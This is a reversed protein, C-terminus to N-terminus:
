EGCADAAERAQSANEDVTLCRCNEEDHPPQPYRKWSGTNGEVRVRGTQQSEYGPKKFATVKEVGGRKWPRCPQM